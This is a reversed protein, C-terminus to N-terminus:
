SSDGSQPLPLCDSRWRSSTSQVDDPSPSALHTARSRLFGMALAIAAVLALLLAGLNVLPALPQSSIVVPARRVESPNVQWPVEIVHAVNRGDLNKTPEDALLVRPRVALARAITLRQQEGGSLQGPYSGRNDALGV